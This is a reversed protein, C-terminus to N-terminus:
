EVHAKEKQTKFFTKKMFATAGIFAILSLLICAFVHSWSFPRYEFAANSEGPKIRVRMMQNEHHYIERPQGDVQARWGDRHIFAVVLETEATIRPLQVRVGNPVYEVADDELIAHRSGQVLYVVRTPFPNEMLYLPGRQAAIKWGAQVTQRDLQGQVVYRVGLDRMLDAKWPREIFYSILNEPPPAIMDNKKLYDYLGRHILPARAEVAFLDYYQLRFDFGLNTAAEHNVRSYPEIYPLIQPIQYKSESEPAYWHSVRCKNMDDYGLVFDFLPVRTSMIGLAFLFSATKFAIRTVKSETELKLFLVYAFLVLQVFFVTIYFKAPIKHWGISLEVGAVFAIYVCTFIVMAKFSIKKEFLADLTKGVLLSMFINSVWLIRTADTSRLFPLSWYLSRQGLILLVFVLPILGLIIMRRTAMDFDRAKCIHYLGILFLFVLPWSLYHWYQQHFTIDVGGIVSLFFRLPPMAEGYLEGVRTSGEIQSVFAYFEPLHFLAACFVLVMCLFGYRLDFGKPTFCANALVFAMSITLPNASVSLMFVLLTVYFLSLNKWSARTHIRDQIILLVSVFLMTGQYHHHAMNWFAGPTFLAIFASVFAAPLSVHKKYWYTLSNLTVFIILFRNITSAVPGDFFWYTSAFLSFPFTLCDGMLPMGFNNGLSILPLAGQRLLQFSVFLNPFTHNAEDNSDFAFCGPIVFVKLICFAAVLAPLLVYFFLAQTSNKKDNESM